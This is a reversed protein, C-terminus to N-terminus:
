ELNAEVEFGTRSPHREIELNKDQEEAKRALNALTNGDNM